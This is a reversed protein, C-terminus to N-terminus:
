THLGFILSLSYWHHDQNRLCDISPLSALWKLYQRVVEILLFGVFIYNIENRGQYAGLGATGVFINACTRHGFCLKTSIDRAISQGAVFHKLTESVLVDL